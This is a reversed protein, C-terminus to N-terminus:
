EAFLRLQTPISPPREDMRLTGEQATGLGNRRWGASVILSIDAVHSSRGPLRRVASYGIIQDGVSAVFEVETWSQSGVRGRCPM